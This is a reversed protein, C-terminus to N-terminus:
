SGSSSGSSVSGSNEGNLFRFVIPAKPQDPSWLARCKRQQRTTLVDFDFCVLSSVLNEKLCCMIMIYHIEPSLNYTKTIYRVIPEKQRHTHVVEQLDNEDLGDLLIALCAENTVKGEALIEQTSYFEFLARAQELQESDNIIPQLIKWAFKKATKPGLCRTLVIKESLPLGDVAKRFKAFTQDQMWLLLGDDDEQYIGSREDRDELYFEYDDSCKNLIIANLSYYDLVKSFVEKDVVCQQIAYGYSTFILNPDYGFWIRDRDSKLIEKPLKHHKQIHKTISRINIRKEGEYDWKDPLTLWGDKSNVAHQRYRENESLLGKCYRHHRSRLNNM